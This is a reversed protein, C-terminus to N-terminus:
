RCSAGPGPGRCQHSLAKGASASQVDQADVCNVSGDDCCVSTTGGGWVKELGRVVEKCRPLKAGAHRAGLGKEGNLAHQSSCSLLRIRRTGSVWCGGMGYHM